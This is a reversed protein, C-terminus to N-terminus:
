TKAPTDSERGHAVVRLVALTERQPTKTHQCGIRISLTEFTGDIVLIKSDGRHPLGWRSAADLGRSDREEAGGGRFPWPARADTGAGPAV